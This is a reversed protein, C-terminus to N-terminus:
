IANNKTRKSHDEGIMDTSADPGTKRENDQGMFVDLHPSCDSLNIM